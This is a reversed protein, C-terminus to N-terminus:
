PCSLNNGTGAPDTGRNIDCILGQAEVLVKKSRGAFASSMRTHTLKIVGDDDSLTEDSSFLRGSPRFRLQDQEGAGLAAATTESPAPDFALAIVANDVRFTAFPVWLAKSADIRPATAPAECDFSNLREGILETTSGTAFRVKVCRKSAMAEGQASALFSALAEANGEIKASDVSPAMTSVSVAALVATIAIVLMMEILSFGRLM